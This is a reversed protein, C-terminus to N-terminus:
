SLQFFKPSFDPLKASFIKDAAVFTPVIKAYIRWGGRPVIKADYFINSLYKKIHYAERNARHNCQGNGHWGM